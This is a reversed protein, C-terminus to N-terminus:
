EDILRNLWQGLLILPAAILREIMQVDDIAAGAAAFRVPVDAPDASFAGMAFGRERQCHDRALRHLRPKGLM